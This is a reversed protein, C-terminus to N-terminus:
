ARAQSVLLHLEAQFENLAAQVHNAFSRETEDRRWNELAIKWIAVGVEAIIRAPSPQIGRQQLTLDIASALAHLKMLEREQLDNHSSILAQRFKVIPRHGDIFAAVSKFAHAVTALPHAGSTASAIEKCISIQHDAARWFLVERKDPFYRYFTRETLGANEAIEPVTTAAYGQKGFLTFAAAEFRERANEARQVM